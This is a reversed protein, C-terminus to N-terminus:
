DLSATQSFPVLPQDLSFSPDAAAIRKWLDAARQVDGPAPSDRYALYLHLMWQEDGLEYVARELYRVGRASDPGVSFEYAGRMGVLNTAGGQIALDFYPIARPDARESFPRALRLNAQRHLPDAALSDAFARDAFARLQAARLPDRYYTLAYTQNPSPHPVYGRDIVDALEDHAEVVGAAVAEELHELYTHYDEADYAAQAQQYAAPDPASCSALLLFLLLLCRM